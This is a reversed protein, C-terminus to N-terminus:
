QLNYSLIFVIVIPQLVSVIVVLIPKLVSVIVILQLVSVIVIPKLDFTTNFGEQHNCRYGYDESSSFYM